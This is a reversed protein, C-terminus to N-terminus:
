SFVLWLVDVDAGQLRGPGLVVELHDGPLTVQDCLATVQDCLTLTLAVPPPPRGDAGLVTVMILIVIISGRCLESVAGGEPALVPLQQLLHLHLLAVMHGPFTVQDCLLTVQDSLTLLALDSALTM